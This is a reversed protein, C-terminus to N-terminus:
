LSIQFHDLWLGFVVTGLYEYFPRVGVESRTLFTGNWRFSLRIVTCRLGLPRVGVYQDQSFPEMGVSLSLRIVISKLGLM